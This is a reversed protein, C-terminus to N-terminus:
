DQNKLKEILLRKVESQYETPIQWFGGFWHNRLTNPSKGITDALEKLFKTKKNIHSYLKEISDSEKWKTTKLATM